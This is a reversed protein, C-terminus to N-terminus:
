TEERLVAMPPAKLAARTSLWLNVAVCLLGLAPGTVFLWPDPAYRTFEFVQAALIWGIAAAAGAALVGALSGIALYETRQAAVVQTRSAGLTRMLAAERLREGQSSMLATHLVLVGAGLAFLFVSQVAAIMRDMLDLAQQLIASTDIVTLNPFARVLAHMSAAQAPEIHFSTIYSVPYGDLLEPTTIVFFNVQMSDWDLSRVSTVPATFTQGGVSWTLRDGLKVGLTRAIGAEISLAGRARDAASFWQGQIIRNHDPLTRMYSLNFEREVLNRTREEAYDEPRVPRDNIAMLRGRVMPYLVPTPLGNASFFDVLAERQEPQINIIFRNPADPPTKARWAAILDSRTFALLLIATIGLSLAVIQVTNSSARRRLNALGYRWAFSSRRGALAALHLSALSSLAFLAAAAAFGALTYAALKVNGTQWIVLATLTILGAAYALLPRVRPRGAERRLVHLAPVRKLQMLPPLAFGLLLVYGTTLGQLAPLASPQPLPTGILDNLLRGILAQAAYGSLSGLVGAVAGLVLFQGGFLRVLRGQGAGLCRMVAYGDYHREVYRRTALSISVAALIVALLATLGLFTQARDLGERVEPRADELGQLQQGRALRPEIWARYARLVAADGAVYLQYRIRSGPQVLGTAAVDDLHMMVWPALNLLSMGLDPAHELSATVTFTAEGLELRDGRAVATLSAFRPDVWVSGRPPGHRVVTVAADSAIRLSGRLPYGPGVAKVATLQAGSPTRAMSIFSLSQATTLGRARAVEAYVAPLPHDASVLLDAGLLQNANLILAQRVRDAFFGVSTISAVAVLLALFLATLEGARLDRLFFRLTLGM